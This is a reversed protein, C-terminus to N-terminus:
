AWRKAYLRQTRHSGLSRRLWRHLHGFARLVMSLSNMIWANTSNRNSRSIKHSAEIATSVAGFRAPPRGSAAIIYRISPSLELLAISAASVSSRLQMHRGSSCFPLTAKQIRLSKLPRSRRDAARHIKTFNQFVRRVPARKSYVLNTPYPQLM